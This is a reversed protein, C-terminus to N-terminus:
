KKSDYYVGEFSNYYNIKDITEDTYFLRNDESWVFNYCDSLDIIYDINFTSNIFINYTKLAIDSCSINLSYCTLTNVSSKSYGDEDIYYHRYTGDSYKYYRNLDSRYYMYSRYQVVSMPSNFTIQAAVCPVDNYNELINLKFNSDNSLNIFFGDYTALYGNTYGADILSNAVYDIIFANKLWGFSIIKTFELETLYNLYESSISLKIKNDGLLLLKIDEGNIYSRIKNIIELSNNSYVPDSYKASDDNIALIVNDYLEYIPGMYLLKENCELVKKLSDYLISDVEIETNVNQNIYFVNKYKPYENYSDFLIYTKELNLTYIDSIAKNESTASENTRGLNYYFEFDEDCNINSTSIIESWGNDSKTFSIIIVIISAIVVLFCIIFLIFRFKIHRENLEIKEVPKLENNYKM